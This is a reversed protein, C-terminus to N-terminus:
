AKFTFSTNKKNSTTLLIHISTAYIPFGNVTYYFSWIPNYIFLLHSPFSLVFASPISNEMNNMTYIQLSKLTSAKESCNLHFHATKLSFYIQMENRLRLM